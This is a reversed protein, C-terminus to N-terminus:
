LPASVAVARDGRGLQLSRFSMDESTQAMVFLGGQLSRLAGEAYDSGRPPTNVDPYKRGPRCRRIRHPCDRRGDTQGKWLVNERCDRVTVCADKVPEGKDLSTVWVLSSEGGWKFHVSLNTVLVATPVFMPRPPHLLAAGLIASELEVVYLGPKKLPIGVVEFARAGMPKPVQFDKAGKEQALISGERSASAVKRM